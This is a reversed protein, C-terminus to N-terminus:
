ETFTAGALAEARARNSLYVQRPRLKHLYLALATLGLLLGFFAGPGADNQSGRFAVMLLAGAGAALVITLVWWGFLKRQTTGAAAKPLKHEAKAKPFSHEATAAKSVDQEAKLPRIESERASRQNDSLVSRLRYGFEGDDEPLLRIIEYVVPNSTHGTVHVQEGVSYRHGM